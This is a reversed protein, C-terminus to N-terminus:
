FYLTVVTFTCLQYYKEVYYMPDLTGTGNPTSDQITSGPRNNCLIAIPVNVNFMMMM